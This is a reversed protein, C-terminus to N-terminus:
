STNLVNNASLIREKTSTPVMIKFVWIGRQPHTIKFFDWNRYFSFSLALIIIRVVKQLSCRRLLWSGSQFYSFSTIALVNTIFRFPMQVYFLFYYFGQIIINLFSSLICIRWNKKIETMFTSINNLLFGPLAMGFFFATILFVIPLFEM